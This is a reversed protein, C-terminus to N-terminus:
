CGNDIIAPNTGAGGSPALCDKWLKNYDNVLCQCHDDSMESGTMSEIAVKLSQKSGMLIGPLVQSMEVSCAIGATSFTSYSLGINPDDWYQLINRFGTSSDNISCVPPTVVHLKSSDTMQFSAMVANARKAKEDYTPSSSTIARGIMFTVYQQYQLASLSVAFYFIYFLLSSCLIFMMLFEIAVQGKKNKTRM